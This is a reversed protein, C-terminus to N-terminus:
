RRLPASSDPARGTVTLSHALPDTAEPPPGGSWGRARRGRPQGCPAPRALRPRRRRQDEAPAFIRPFGQDPVAQEGHAGPGALQLDLSGPQASAAGGPAADDVELPDPPRAM